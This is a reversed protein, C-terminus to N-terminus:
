PKQYALIQFDEKFKSDGWPAQYLIKREIGPHHVAPYEMDSLIVMTGGPKLFSPFDKLLREHLKGEPDFNNRSGSPSFVEGARESGMGMLANQWGIPRPAAFLILDYKDRVQNFLDSKFVRIKKLLGHTKLNINLSKLAAPNIDTVDIESNPFRRGLIVAEYGSGGGLILVRQGEQAYPFAKDLLQYTYPNYALHDVQPPPYAGKAVLLHIEDNWKLKYPPPIAVEEFYRLGSCSAALRNLFPIQLLDLANLSLSSSEIIYLSSLVIFLSLKQGFKRM